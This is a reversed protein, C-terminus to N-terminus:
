LSAAHDPVYNQLDRPPRVYGTSAPREPLELVPLPVERYPVSDLLHAIMNLRARKKDDSEVVMWPAEAIDTHVLMEDKARSYAEWRTISELDMPSLKWRRVPDDLRKRFRDQQEGDSVSFWYKRLMVGDEVLMREFIPCQRLFRQYEEKTCFGMVHEVGARNYWSRDLLVIEGAAPLHEVYRQFYWQTRERETPKPLAVVRAVRPNLHETVRKITGGKGAADRGEFVVVLRAGEARVWEQLKVLETQLRLLESEYVKRKLNGAATM